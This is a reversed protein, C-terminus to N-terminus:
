KEVINLKLPSIGAQSYVIETIQAIESQLLTEETDVIVSASDGNIVAVCEAFGKAKVLSEVNAEKEIDEAIRAIESMASERDADAADENDVVLQLVEMAEDRAKQRDIVAMAFFAASDEEASESANAGASTEEPLYDKGALEDGFLKWNLLIAGAILVMSGVVWLVRKKNEKWFGTMKEPLKRATEELAILARSENKETTKMLQM